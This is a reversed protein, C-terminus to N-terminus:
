GNDYVAGAQLTIGSARMLESVTVLQYGRCILEPVAREMAAATSAYMDHSLIIARDHMNSIIRSYIIDADKCDWDLPDVSWNIIACGLEASVRKLDSSVAGYPPRYIKPFTGTIKKLANGTDNLELRIEDPCLKSLDRHTWSHGVVESGMGLARKITDEGSKILNGVVFFTARASHKELTDLILETYPSPGDDFTLAALPKSPDINM